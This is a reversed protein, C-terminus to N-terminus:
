SPLQCRRWFYPCIFSKCPVGSFHFQYYFHTCFKRCKM